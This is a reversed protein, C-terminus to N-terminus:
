RYRVSISSYDFLLITHQDVAEKLTLRGAPIAKEVVPLPISTAPDRLPIAPGCANLLIATRDVVGTNHDVPQQRKHKGKERDKFEQLAQIKVLQQAIEVQQKEVTKSAKMLFDRTNRDIPSSKSLTQLARVFHQRNHPTTLTEPDDNFTDLRLPPTQPRSLPHPIICRSDLGKRPNYPHIGAARFGSECNIITMAHQRAESYQQIFRAKKIPKLNGVQYFSGVISRFKRKLSSFVAIDLPQFIHSSHPILYCVWIRNIWALGQFEATVHSKHGDLVLMKWGDLDATQPIFIRQLWLIGLENSSFACPSSSFLWDLVDSLIFWQQHVHKDKFILLPQLIRGMASICEISTAWERNEPRTVLSSNSSSNGLVRQNECAELATGTEDMNFINGAPIKKSTLIKLLTRYWAHVAAETVTRSRQYGIKVGLKSKVEPHRLLFRSIFKIGVSNPGGSLELILGCM